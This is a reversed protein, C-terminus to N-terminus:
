AGELRHLREDTKRQKENTDRTLMDIQAQLDEDQEKFRKIIAYQSRIADQIDNHQQSFRHDSRWAACTVVVVLVVIAATQVADISTDLGHLM